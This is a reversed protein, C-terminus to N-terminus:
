SADEANSGALAARAIEELEQVQPDFSGAGDNDLAHHHLIRKLAEVAAEKAAVAADREACAKVCWDRWQWSEKRQEEIDAHADDLAQSYVDREGTLKAVEGKLQHYELVRCNAAQIPDNSRMAALLDNREATLKAVDAEAAKLRQVTSRHHEAEAFCSECFPGDDGVYLSDEGIGAHGTPTDCVCCRETPQSM